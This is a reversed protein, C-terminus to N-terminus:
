VERCHDDRVARDSEVTFLADGRSVPDGEEKIIAEGNPIGADELTEAMLM